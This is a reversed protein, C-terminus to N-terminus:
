YTCAPHQLILIVYWHFIVMDIFLWWSWTCVVIELVKNTKCDGPVLYGSHNRGQKLSDYKCWDTTSQVFLHLLCLVIPACLVVLLKSTSTILTNFAHLGVDWNRGFRGILWFLLKTWVLIINFLVFHYVFFSWNEEFLWVWIM